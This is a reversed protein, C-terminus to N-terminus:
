QILEKRGSMGLLEQRRQRLLALLETNQQHALQCFEALRRAFEPERVEIPRTRGARKRERDRGKSM